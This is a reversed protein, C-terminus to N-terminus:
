LDGYWYRLFGGETVPPTMGRAVLITKEMPLFIVSQVTGYNAVSTWEEIGGDFDSLAGRVARENIAEAGEYFRELDAYRDRSEGIWTMDNQEDVHENTVFHNTAVIYGKADRRTVSSSTMEFVAAANEGASSVALNNGITTKHETLVREVDGLTKAEELVVRYLIGTPIDVKTEKIESTLSGLTIGSANVGTLIGIYGPFGVSLVHKEVYRFIVNNGALGEVEYDLNRGHILTPADKEGRLVAISSCGALYLLDDYTNMLLIENYTVGAGDAVGQMEQRYVEPIKKDLQHAKRLLLGRVFINGGFGAGEIASSVSTMISQIEDHLLKGHMYGSAYGTGQITVVPVHELQARFKSMEDANWAATVEARDPVYINPDAYITYIYTGAGIIALAACIYIYTKPRLRM